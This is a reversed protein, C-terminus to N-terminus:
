AVFQSLIFIIILIITSINLVIVFVLVAVTRTRGTHRVETGCRKVQTSETGATLM